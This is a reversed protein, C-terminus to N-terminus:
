DERASPLFRAMWTIFAIYCLGYALYLVWALQSDHLADLIGRMIYYAGHEDELQTPVTTGQLAALIDLMVGINLGAVWGLLGLLGLVLDLLLQVFEGIMALVVLVVEYIAVLWAWLYVMAQQAWVFFDRALGLWGWLAYLWQRITLWAFLFFQWMRNAMMILANAFHQLTTVLWQAIIFLWCILNLFQRIIHWVLWNFILRFGNAPTLVEIDFSWGTIRNSYNYTTTWDDAGPLPPAEALTPVHIFPEGDEQCDECQPIRWTVLGLLEPMEDFQPYELPPTGTPAGPAGADITLDECGSAIRRAQWFHTQYFSDQTVDHLVVGTAHNYADVFLGDSAYLAVHQGGDYQLFVLDGPAWCTTSSGNLDDLTCPIVQGDNVQQYTTWGLGIDAQQYAWYVLGSCDFSDPGTRPLPFGSADLPDNPLNGGQSYPAGVKSLAAQVAVQCADNTQAQAPHRAPFLGALLVPLLLLVALRRRRIGM